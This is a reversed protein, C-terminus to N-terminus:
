ILGFTAITNNELKDLHLVKTAKSYIFTEVECNMNYEEM